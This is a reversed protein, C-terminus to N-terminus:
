FQSPYKSFKISNIIVYDSFNSPVNVVVANKNLGQYFLFDGLKTWTSFRTSYTAGTSSQPYYNVTSPVDIQSNASASVTPTYITVEYLGDEPLVVDWSFTTAKKQNPPLVVFSNGIRESGEKTNTFSLWGDNKDFHISNTADTTLTVIPPLNTLLNLRQLLMETFRALITGDTSRQYGNSLIAMIVEQGNPLTFQAM